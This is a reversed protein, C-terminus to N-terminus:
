GDFRGERIRVAVGEIDATLPRDADLAASQQRVAAHIRAVAKAPRLPKM